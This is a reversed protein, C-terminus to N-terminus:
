AAPILPGFEPEFSHLDRIDSTDPGVAMPCLADPIVAVDFLETLAGELRLWQVMDGSKLDIVAVGCWPSGDRKALEEEIPLGGFAGDRPLSLTVLAHGGHLVLGRLFGPCFAIDTRAGSAPDIRVIQGRGSDLLWVGDKAVRPSHPMSLGEAVIRGDAIDILVGGDARRDRWGEAVDSRSVATVFAPVGDKMALGNLHCRDEAALRSVFPPKWLPTFGHVPSLTALCSYKTAVLIVRGARDIAIEHADIDGTTQAVRPVYLRDYNVNAREGERLVNELRWLQYHGALFIRQRSAYLGTARAFRQHHISVRGDPMRGILFLRGTQYSTFAISCRHRELWDALGRSATVRAGLGREGESIGDDTM